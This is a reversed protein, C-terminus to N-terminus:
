LNREKWRDNLLMVFLIFMNMQQKRGFYNKLFQSKRMKGSSSSCFETIKKVQPEVFFLSKKLLMKISVRSLAILLSM